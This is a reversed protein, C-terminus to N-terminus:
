RTLILTLTLTLTLTLALALALALTLALGLGLGSAAGHLTFRLYPQPTCCALGARRAADGGLWPMPLACRVCALVYLASSWALGM